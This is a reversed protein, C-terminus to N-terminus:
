TDEREWDDILVAISRRWARDIQRRSRAHSRRLVDWADPSAVADIIAVLDASRAPSAGATEAAFTGRVQAALADKMETSAELMARHDLARLRGIAMIAGAQEFLDLRATVFADIRECRSGDPASRVLPAYRHRFRQYAQYQLDDLGDFYRFISAASVGSREAIMETNLPIKGEQALEFAADIM